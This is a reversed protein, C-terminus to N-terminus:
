GLKINNQSTGLQEVRKAIEGALQPNDALALPPLIIYGNAELIKKAEQINLPPACNKLVSDAVPFHATTTHEPIETIEECIVNGAGDLKTVKKNHAEVTKTVTKGNEMMDKMTALALLGLESNANNEKFKLKAAAIRDFFDPYTRKWKYYTEKSIGAREFAIRELGFEEVYDALEQVIKENYKSKAM